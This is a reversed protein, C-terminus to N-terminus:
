RGWPYAFALLIGFGIGVALAGCLGGAVVPVAGAIFSYAQSKLGQGLETFTM